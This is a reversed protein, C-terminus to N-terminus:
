KRGSGNNTSDGDQQNTKARGTKNNGSGAKKKAAKDNKQQVNVNKQNTTKSPSTNQAHSAEQNLCIFVATLLITLMKHM